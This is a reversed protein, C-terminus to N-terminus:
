LPIECLPQGQDTPIWQNDIKNQLGAAELLKNVERPNTPPTMMQGLQTPTFTMVQVPASLSKQGMAELPSFGIM